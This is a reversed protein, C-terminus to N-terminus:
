DVEEMASSEANETSAPAETSPAPTEEVVSEIDLGLAVLSNIRGAFANPDDLSFGSSLLATEYLLTCLDSVARSNGEEEVKKKL